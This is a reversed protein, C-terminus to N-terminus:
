GQSEYKRTYLRARLGAIRTNPDNDAPECDNIVRDQFVASGERPSLRYQKPNSYFHIVKEAEDIRTQLVKFNERLANLEKLTEELRQASFDTM